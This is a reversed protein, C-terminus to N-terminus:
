GNTDGGGNTTTTQFSAFETLAEYINNAVAMSTFTSGTIANLGNATFGEKSRPTTELTLGAFQAQWPTEMCKYGLGPTESSADVIRIGEVKGELNVGILTVVPGGYGTNGKKFVYGVTAGSSDMATYYVSEGNTTATFKSASPMVSSLASQVERADTEDLKASLVQFTLALAFGFFVTIVV